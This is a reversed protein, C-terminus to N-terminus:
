ALSHYLNHEARDKSAVDGPFFCSDEFKSFLINISQDLKKTAPLPKILIKM